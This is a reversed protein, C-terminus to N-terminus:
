VKDNAFTTSPAFSLSARRPGDESADVVCVVGDGVAYVVSRSFEHPKGCVLRITLKGEILVCFCLCWKEDLTEPAEKRVAFAPPKLIDRFASGDDLTARDVGTRALRTGLRLSLFGYRAGSGRVLWKPKNKDQGPKKGPYWAGDRSLQADIAKSFRCSDALSRSWGALKGRPCLVAPFSPGSGPPVFKRDKGKPIRPPPPLAFSGSSCKPDEPDPLVWEDSDIPPMVFEPYKRNDWDWIDHQKMMPVVRPGYVREDLTEGLGVDSPRILWPCDPRPPDAEPPARAPAEAPAPAPSPAGTEDEVLEGGLKRPDWAPNPVCPM